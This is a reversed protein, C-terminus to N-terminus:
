ADPKRHTPDAYYQTMSSYSRGTMSAVSAMLMSCLHAPAAPQSTFSQRHRIDVHLAHSELNDGYLVEEACNHLVPVQYQEIGLTNSELVDKVAQWFAYDSRGSFVEKECAFDIELRRNLDLEKIPSWLAEIAPFTASAVDESLFLYLLSKHVAVVKVASMAGQIHAQELTEMVFSEELPENYLVAFRQKGAKTMVDLNPTKWQLASFVVYQLTNDLAIPTNEPHYLHSRTM